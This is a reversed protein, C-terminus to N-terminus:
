YYSDAEPEEAAAPPSPEAPTAPPAANGAPAVPAPSAAAQPAAPLPYGARSLSADLAQQNYGTLIDEDLHVVPVTLAGSGGVLSRLENQKEVDASVDKEAFPVGRSQLQIRVLDCAQCNPAAYLTVPHQAAILNIDITDPKRDGALKKEGKKSTGPPCFSRFSSHGTEDVCEVITVAAAPAATAM